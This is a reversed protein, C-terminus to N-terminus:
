PYCYRSGAAPDTPPANRRALLFGMALSALIGAISSLLLVFTHHSLSRQTLAMESQAHSHGLQSFRQCLLLLRQHHSYSRKLRLLAEERQGADLAALTQRRTEDFAGYESAILLLVQQSESPGAGSQARELWRAFSERSRELQVLWEREGTLMYYAVFGKQYLLDQLAETNDFLELQGHLATSGIRSLQRMSVVGVGCVASLSLISVLSVLALQVSLTWSRLPAM